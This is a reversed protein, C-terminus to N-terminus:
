RGIRYLMTKTRMFIGGDVVAMSAMCGDPMTNEAIKTFTRGPAFVTTLGSEDSTYIRGDAYVPSASSELGVRQTWIEVGTSADICKAQGATNVMYLLGDIYLQSSRATMNKKGSWVISQDTMDGKGGLRIGMLWSQGFGTNIFIMGNGIVPRVSTSFGEYRVKWILEGTLPQYAELVHPGASILQDIGDVKAVIPTSFAKHCDPTLDGFDIIRSKKWVTRGSKKDLAELFQFDMGDMTLILLDKYVIPSSGPGVGHDCHIDTRQWLVKGSETDLCATGYTGFHVYVRGAEVVPTPSAFSNLPHTEQTPVVEFVKVDHVIKGTESHVGIVRYEKGDPSATTMWLKKNLLVPSSWGRGPIATKWVVNTSDNWHLPVHRAASYGNDFPGRFSPWSDATQARSPQLGIFLCILILLKRM